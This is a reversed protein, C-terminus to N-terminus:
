EKVPIKRLLEIAKKLQLDRDLDVGRRPYQEDASIFEPNDVEYEPVIGRNNIKIRANGVFYEAVTLHLASGDKLLFDAQITGKGYTQKGVRPAGTAQHIFEAVIEAASATHEDVIMVIPINRFIGSPIGEIEYDRIRLVNEKHRFKATVIVHRPNRAFLSSMGAARDLLGGRNKRLDLIFKKADPYVIMYGGDYIKIVRESIDEFVEKVVSSEFNRIHIYTIDDDIDQTIVSRVTVFERLLTAPEQLIGERDVRITVPTGAPGYMKKMVVNIPEKRVDKGNLEVIVDDKQFLGSREAPSDSILDSVVIMGLVSTLKLGVGM